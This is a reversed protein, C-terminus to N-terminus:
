WEGRMKYCSPCCGPRYRCKSCGNPYLKLANPPRDSRGGAKAAKASAPKKLAKLNGKKEDKKQIKNEKKQKKEEIAAAPRKLAAAPRKLPGQQKAGLKARLDQAVQDFKSQKSVENPDKPQSEQDAINQDNEAKKAPEKKENSDSALSQAKVFSTASIQQADHSPALEPPATAPVTSPAPLPAPQSAM